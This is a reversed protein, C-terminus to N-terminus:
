WDEREMTQYISQQTILIAKRARQYQEMTANAPDQLFTTLDNKLPSDVDLSSDSFYGNLIASLDEIDNQTWTSHQPLPDSDADELPDKINNVLLWFQVLRMRGRRDMFEMFYSQGSSSLLLDALRTSSAPKTM